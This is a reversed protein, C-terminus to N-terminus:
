TLGSVSAVHHLLHQLSPLAPSRWVAAVWFAAFPPRM